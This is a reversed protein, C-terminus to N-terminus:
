KGFSKDVSAFVIIGHRPDPAALFCKQCTREGNGRFAILLEAVDLEVFIEQATGGCVKDFGATQQSAKFRARRKSMYFVDPLPM